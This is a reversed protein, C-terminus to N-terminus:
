ALVWYYYVVGAVFLSDFRDVIGGHGPLLGGSDKKNSLRKVSSEALDGIIGAISLLLGLIIKQTTPNYYYQLLQQTTSSCTDSDCELVLSSSPLSIQYVLASLPGTIIAGLLGPMTKGPSISKLFSVFKGTNDDSNSASDDDDKKVKKTMLRGLILAGTDSMWVIFLLNRTHIWGGVKCISLIYHFGISLYIIGFQYHQMSKCYSSINSQTSQYVPLHPIFRIVIGFSLLVLPLTSTPIITILVSYICFTYFICKSISSSSKDDKALLAQLRNNIQVLNSNSSSQADKDTDDYNTPPLLSKWEYLCIMHASQFFLWSTISNRLLVIILPVGITITLLRRPVDKWATAMNNAVVSDYLIAM